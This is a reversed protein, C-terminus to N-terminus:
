LPIFLQFPLIRVVVVDEDFGVTLGKKSKLKERLLDLQRDDVDEPHDEERPRKKSIHLTTRHIYM